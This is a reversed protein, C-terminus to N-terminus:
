LRLFRDSNLLTAMNLRNAWAAGGGRPIPARKDVLAVAVGDSNIPALVISPLVSKSHRRM